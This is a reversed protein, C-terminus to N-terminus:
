VGATRPRSQQLTVVAVGRGGTGCCSGKQWVPSSLRGLPVMKLLGQHEEAARGPRLLATAGGEAGGRVSASAPHGAPLRLSAPVMQLQPAAHGGGARLPGSVDQVSSCGSVSNAGPWPAPGPAAAPVADESVQSPLAEAGPALVLFGQSPPVPGWAAEEPPFQSRRSWGPGGLLVQLQVPPAAPSSSASRVAQPPLVAAAPGSRSTGCVGPVKAPVQLTM